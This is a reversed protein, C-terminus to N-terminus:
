VMPHITGFHRNKLVEVRDTIQPAFSEIQRLDSNTEKVVSLFKEHEEEVLNLMARMSALKDSMTQTLKCLAAVQAQTEPTLDKVQKDFGPRRNQTYFNFREEPSFNTIRQQTAMIEIQYILGKFSQIKDTVFDRQQDFSLKQFVDSRMNSEINTKYFELMDKHSELHTPVRTEMQVLQMLNM